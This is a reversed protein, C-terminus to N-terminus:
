YWKDKFPDDMGELDLESVSVVDWDEFDSDSKASEGMKPSPSNEEIITNDRHVTPSSAKREHM